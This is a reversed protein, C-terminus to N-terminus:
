QSRKINQVPCRGWRELDAQALSMPVGTICSIRRPTQAYGLAVARAAQVERRDDETARNTKFRDATEQKVILVAVRGNVTERIYVPKAIVSPALLLFLIIIAPKM